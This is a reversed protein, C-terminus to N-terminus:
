KYMVTEKHHYCNGLSMTHINVQHCSLVQSVYCLSVQCLKTQYILLQSLTLMATKDLLQNIHCNPNSICNTYHNSKAINHNLYLQATILKLLGSCHPQWSGEPCTAAYQNPHCLPALCTTPTVKLNSSSIVELHCPPALAPWLGCLANSRGGLQLQYVLHQLMQWTPDQSRPCQLM